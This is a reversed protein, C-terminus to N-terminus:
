LWDGDGLGQVIRGEAAGYQLFHLLPNLGASAVDPHDTNYASIDFAASPDRGERWGYTYFHAAASPLVGQQVASAVDPNKSLYWRTDFFANPDRGEQFGSRVFHEYGNALDGVRVSAAVDPNAALYYKEDYGYALLGQDVYGARGEARGAVQYHHYGSSFIGQNVAVRVDAYRDLYASESFGNGLNDSVANPQRGEAQGYLQFHQTASQLLGRAVVDAVDPNRALYWTEDVQSSPVPSRLDPTTLLVVRDNLRLLEIGSFVDAGEGDPRGDIVQVGGSGDRLITVDAFNANMGAAQTGSGGIILDNGKGGKLLTHGAPGQIIDANDTGQGNTIATPALVLRNGDAISLLAGTGLGAIEVIYDAGAVTDAGVHLRVTGDAINEYRVEGLGLGDGSGAGYNTIALQGDDLRNTFSLQDGAHFDAIRDSDISGRQGGMVFLDNGTGGWLTDNGAGGKLVDAGGGGKILDAGAGGNLTENRNGGTITDAYRTGTVQVEEISILQDHDGNDITISNDTVTIAVAYANESYDLIAQDTGAGGDLLDSDRGGILLDDGAGGRLTDVGWGGYLTDQLNGGTISDNGRNGSILNRAETAGTLVNNYLTGNSIRYEVGNITAKEVDILYVEGEVQSTIYYTNIRVGSMEEENFQAVISHTRAGNAPDYNLDAADFGTGGYLISYGGFNQRLVDDGAGGDLTDSGTLGIITDNGGLGAISDNGTTGTLLDAGETPTVTAQSVLTVRGSTGDAITFSSASYSNSLTYSYGVIRSAGLGLYTTGDANAAVQLEGDFPVRRTGDYISTVPDGFQIVDGVAFDTIVDAPPMYQTGSDYAVFEDAGGGGTLSDAGAGGILTDNGAGGVLTDDLGTGILRIGGAVNATLSVAMGSVASADIEKLPLSIGYTDVAVGGETVLLSGNVYSVIVAGTATGSLKLGNGGIVPQSTVVIGM